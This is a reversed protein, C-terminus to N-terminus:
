WNIFAIIFILQYILQNMECNHTEQLVNNIFGEIDLVIGQFMSKGHERLEEWGRHLSANLALSRNLRIRRECVSRYAARLELGQLTAM